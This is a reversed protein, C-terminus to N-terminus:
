DFQFWYENDDVSTLAPSLKMMTKDENFEINITEWDYGFRNVKIKNGSIIKYEFTAIKTDLWKYATEVRYDIENESFDLVCLISSNKDGDVREWGQLLEKKLNSIQIYNIIATTILIVTIIIVIGLIIKLYSKNKTNSNFILEDTNLKVGCKPCYENNNTINEGCNHCIFDVQKDNIEGNEDVLSEDCM